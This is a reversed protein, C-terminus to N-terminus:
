GNLLALVNNRSIDNFNQLMMMNSQSLVGARAQEAVGQAYDLDEAQSLAATTNIRTNEANNLSSELRNYTAGSTTRMENVRGMATDIGSIAAGINAPDSIDLSDLGLSSSGVDAAQLNVQDRSEAGPGAQVQGTGDSLPSDGDLLSQGNYQTSLSIRDIEQSLQQFETNLADRQDQNLTGNDAQLALERQRQLMSSIENAGGEQIRLASMADGMNGEAAEFGRVQKELERAISMMAADDGARNIRKGTSLKEFIKRLSFRNERNQSLLSLGAAKDIQM